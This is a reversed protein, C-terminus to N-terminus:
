AEFTDDVARYAKSPRSSMVVGQPMTVSPKTTVGKGKLQMDAEPHKFTCTGNHGLFRCNLLGDLGTGTRSCPKDGIMAANVMDQVDQDYRDSAWQDRSESFRVHNQTSKASQSVVPSAEPREDDTPTPPETTVNHAKLHNQASRNQESAINDKIFRKIRSGIRELLEGVQFRGKLVGRNGYLMYLEKQYAADPFSKIIHDKLDVDSYEFHGESSYRIEKNLDHNFEVWANHDYPTSSAFRIRNLRALNETLCHNDVRATVLLTRLTDGDITSWFKGKSVEEETKLRCHNVSYIYGILSCIYEAAPMPILSIPFSNADPFRRNQERNVPLAEWATM